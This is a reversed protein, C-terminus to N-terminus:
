NKHALAILESAEVGKEYAQVFMWQRDYVAVFPTFKVEFFAPIYYKPDRGTRINPFTNLGYKEAFERIEDLPRYAAFVFFVNKLSDMNKIIETAEYQCHNCDPAFYIIVTYDCKPLQAKSFFSGDTQQITFDPLRPDKRYPPLVEATQASVSSISVLLFFIIFLHKM